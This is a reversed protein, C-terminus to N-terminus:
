ESELAKKKLLENAEDLDQIRDLDDEKRKSNALKESQLELETQKSQDNAKKLEAELRAIHEDKNKVNLQYKEEADKNLKALDQM